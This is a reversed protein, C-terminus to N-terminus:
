PVVRMLDYYPISPIFLPIRKPAPMEFKKILEYEVIYGDDQIKAVVGEDRLRTIVEACIASTALLNTNSLLISAKTARGRRLIKIVGQKRRQWIDNM